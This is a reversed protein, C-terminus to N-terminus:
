DFLNAHNELINNHDNAVPGADVVSVLAEMDKELAHVINSMFVGPKVRRPKAGTSNALRSMHVFQGKKKDKVRSLLAHEMMRLLEIAQRSSAETNREAMRKFLVLYLGAHRQTQVSESVTWDWPILKCTFLNWNVVLMTRSDHWPCAPPRFWKLCCTRCACSMSRCEKAIRRKLLYAELDLVFQQCLVEAIYLPKMVDVKIRKSVGRMVLSHFGDLAGWFERTAFVIELAADTSTHPTVM